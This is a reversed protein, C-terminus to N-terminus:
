ELEIVYMKKVEDFLVSMACPYNAGVSRFIEVIKVLTIYYLMKKSAYDSAVFVGVLAEGFPIFPTFILSHIFQNCVETVNLSNSTVSM